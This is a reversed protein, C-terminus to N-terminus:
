KNHVKMHNTLGSKNKFSKKCEPCIIENNSIDESENKITTPELTIQEEEVNEKQGIDKVMYTQGVQKLLLLTNKQCEPCKIEDVHKVIGGYITEPLRQLKKMDYITFIHGCECKTTNKIQYGKLDM